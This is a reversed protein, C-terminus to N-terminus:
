FVSGFCFDTKGGTKPKILNKVLKPIKKKLQVLAWSKTSDILGVLETWDLKTKLVMVYISFECYKWLLNYTSITILELKFRCNFVCKQGNTVIQWKLNTILINHVYYKKM